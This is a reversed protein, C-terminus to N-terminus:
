KKLTSCITSFRISKKGKRVFLKSSMLQVFFILKNPVSFFDEKFKM